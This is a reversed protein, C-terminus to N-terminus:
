GRVIPVSAGYESLLPRIYGLVLPYRSLGRTRLSPDSYKTTLPGVTKELVNQKSDQASLDVTGSKLIELALEMCANKVRQPVVATSYYIRFASDPDEAFQRPWALAQSDSVRSGIWGRNCLERTAHILARSKVDDDEEDTWASANPRADAYSDMEVATAFSNSASGGVTASVTPM